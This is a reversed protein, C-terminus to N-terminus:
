TLFPGRLLVSRRGGTSTSDFGDIVQLPLPKNKFWPDEKCGGLIRHV